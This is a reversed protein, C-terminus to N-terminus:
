AFVHTPAAQRAWELIRLAEEGRVTPEEHSRIARVFDLHQRRFPELADTAGPSTRSPPEPLALGEQVVLRTVQGGRIEFSGFECHFEFREPEQAHISTTTTLTGFAGSEFDIHLLATDEVAISHTRTAKRAEVSRAPGALWFLVDLAHVAQNLLVGGESPDQLGRGPAAEYYAQNRRWLSSASILITKGLVGDRLVKRAWQVDDHFRHQSVVSLTLGKAAALDIARRARQPDLDIPKEVLVHKGCELAQLALDAHSGPPTTVLVCDVDKRRILEEPTCAQAGFESRFHEARAPDLDGVAALTTESLEDLVKAHRAAINGCGLLGYRVPKM